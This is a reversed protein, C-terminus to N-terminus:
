FFGAAITVGGTYSVDYALFEPSLLRGEQNYIRIYSAGSGGVGTIIEDYGNGNTDVATVSVGGRSAEDFAMFGPSLIEYAQSRGVGFIRVHPGGSSVIGTITEQKGDNNVDGACSTIGGRFSEEYAMIGLTVPTYRGERMGFIRIHPGGRSTPTTILESIGDGDVDAISVAIGGRFNVDYAMFNETTPVIEGNRLGFIRVNPSGGSIPAVAIEYLGDGEIDGVGINIGGKFNADYADFDWGLNNGDVDFVKITPVGGERTSTIIESIGDGNIDGVAVNIGGWFDMDYAYFYNVMTGDTNLVGVLSQGNSKPGTVIYRNLTYIYTFYTGDSINDLDDVSKLHLYYTGNATLTPVSFNTGTQFSGDEADATLDTSLNVYYGKIDSAADVAASWTFYPQPHRYSVTAPDSLAETATSSSYVSYTTPDTPGTKDINAVTATASGPNGISDAFEFTFSGNATFTYTTAGSNNTVTVTESPVLTAVVSQNTAATTSYSITATPATADTQSLANNANIRGGTKVKGTLSSKTEVNDLIADKIGAYTYNPNYSKLLAALGAVHPAAMSTGNMYAYNQLAVTPYIIRIDDIAAGFYNSDSGNTEWTFRVKMNSDKYSSVNFGGTGSTASGCYYGLETWSSGNYVDASLYDNFCLTSDEAEVYYYYQFIVTSQGATNIADSTLVGDSSTQYPSYSTDGYAWVNGSATDTMWYNNTGSSTFDTGNFGPQVANEFGEDFEFYPVTSYINVGPAAVDVSTTGYNSFGALSDNQDTAAVSIINDLDYDSPYQHTGGDNNTADNGAAAVILCDYTTMGEEIADYMAQSYGSGGLSMNIVDAGQDYAEYIGSVIDANTGFGTLGLVRIPVIKIDSGFGAIGQGNDAVAAIVGAVHTGHDLFDYANADDDVFDYGQEIQSSLEPHYLAVGSDIVAVTAESTSAGAVVDWAAPMDIDADATGATGNVTQGTNHLGWQVGYYTDNPTSSAQYIYNPEVYEVLPNDILGEVLQQTTQSDSKLLTINQRALRTKETLNEGRALATMKNIGRSQNLDLDSKKFKVLVEGEIYDAKQRDFEPLRGVSSSATLRPFLILVAIGFILIAGLRKIKKSIVM